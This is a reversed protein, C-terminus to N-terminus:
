SRFALLMESPLANSFHRDNSVFLDVKAHLGSAIILSDFTRLSTWDVRKDMGVCDIVEHTIDQCFSNPFNLLYNKVAKYENGKTYPGAFCYVRAQVRYCKRTEHQM